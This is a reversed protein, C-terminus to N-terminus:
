NKIKDFVEATPFLPGVRTNYIIYINIIYISVNRNIFIYINIILNFQIYIYYKYFKSLTYLFYIFIIYSIPAFEM